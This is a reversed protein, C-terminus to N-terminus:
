RGPTTAVTALTTATGGAMGEYMATFRRPEFAEYNKLNSAWRYGIPQYLLEAELRLPGPTGAPVAMSYHVTDGHDGFSPDDLADGHVAVNAPATHKDFGHPLLRNDKLYGTADLL